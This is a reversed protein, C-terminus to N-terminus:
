NRVDDDERQITQVLKKESSLLHDDNALVEDRTFLNKASALSM